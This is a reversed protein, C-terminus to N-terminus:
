DPLRDGFHIKLGRLANTWNYAKRWKTEARQIALYILKSAAQEDPFHGRTKIAKRIQRNLNEISNTTYVARRLDAPLALFPTIHEWRARWSEAIMPYREGWAEDFAALADAAADINAAAYVPRLEAAVRKRDKYAVYRMSSRIQHVICTQVWAQPFVAAIAEPFGTLGDVCAILVDKTGRQHLDNLVALWFKAGETEQWWIGLVERDGEVTVGIALYCARTRVSRDERVKVMLADFYVIPYVAELPRTRWAAVDELVADTVRSITDRGLETGYLDSLHQAIDRVSMGGAYLGLVRDDLGALRTQRKGVLKPEFSGKRDRPTRIEVPGLETQVTKPTSGNRTNGAGGPPAQGPPYGLHESLEAGLATEIVRGALQSLLGGPGTVEEPELGKLADQLADAPLLGELRGRAEEVASEPRVPGSSDSGRSITKQKTTV